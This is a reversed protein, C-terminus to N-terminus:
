EDKEEGDRKRLTELGYLLSTLKADKLERLAQIREFGPHQRRVVRNDRLELVEFPHDPQDLLERRITKSGAIHVTDISVLIQDASQMSNSSAMALPNGSLIFDQAHILNNNGSLHYM